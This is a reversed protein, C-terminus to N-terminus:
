VPSRKERTINLGWRQPCSFKVAEPKQKLDKKSSKLSEEPFICFVLRVLFHTLPFLGFFLLASMRNALQCTFLQGALGPGFTQTLRCARVVLEFSVVGGPVGDRGELSPPQTGLM